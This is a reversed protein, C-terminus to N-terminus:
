NMVLYVFKRLTKTNKLHDLFLHSLEMKMTLFILFLMSKSLIILYNMLYRLAGIQWKNNM